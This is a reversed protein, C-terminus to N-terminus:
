NGELRMLRVKQDIFNLLEAAPTNGEVFGHQLDWFREGGESNYIARYFDWKTPTLYQAYSRYAAIQRPSLMWNKEDYEELGQECVILLTPEEIQFYDESITFKLFTTKGSELFGSILYMPVRVEEM